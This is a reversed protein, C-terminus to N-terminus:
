IGINVNGFPVRRSWKNYVLWTWPVIEEDSTAMMELTQLYKPYAESWDV